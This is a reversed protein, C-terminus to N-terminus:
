RTPDVAAKTTTSKHSSTAAISCTGSAAARKCLWGEIAFYRSRSLATIVALTFLGFNKCLKFWIVEAGTGCGCDFEVAFFNIGQEQMVALSRLFIAPTFVCLMMAMITAAGRVYWGILLAIGCVIELWPLIIATGNLFFSPNEPLLNYLHIAKLFGVPDIIKNIGAYIFYGGLYIRMVSALSLRKQDFWSIM